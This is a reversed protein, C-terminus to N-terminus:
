VPPIQVRRSQTETHVSFMKLIFSKSFSLMAIVTVNRSRGSHEEALFGFRVPKIANEFEEAYHPGPRSTATRARQSMRRTNERKKLARTTQKGASPM